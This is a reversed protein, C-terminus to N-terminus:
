YPNWIPNSYLQPKTQTVLPRVGIASVLHFVLFCGPILIQATNQGRRLAFLAFCLVFENTPGPDAARVALDPM